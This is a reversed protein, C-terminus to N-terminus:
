RHDVEALAIPRSEPRLPLPGELMATGLDGFVVLAIQVQQEPLHGLAPIPVFHTQPNGPLHAGFSLERLRSPIALRKGALRQEKM